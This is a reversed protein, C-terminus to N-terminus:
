DSPSPPPLGMPNPFTIDGAAAIRRAAPALGALLAQVREHGLPEYIALALEDTRREIQDRM